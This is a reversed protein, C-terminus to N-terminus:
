MKATCKLVALREIFQPMFGYYWKISSFGMEGYPDTHSATDVSPEKDITVFKSSKGDTQFGVTTFAKDGVVLFPFVDYKSGTKYFSANTANAGKGAWKMMHPVVVIRFGAIRGVEGKLLTTGAAYQHAPVFAPKDHFDKMAELTPILESGVFAVRCDPITKTDILRTGTIIKTQKPTHNNDLDIGLRVLDAYSLEMTDNLESMQTASGTYKVLGANTLLDLQLKDEYIKVAANMKERNLHMKLQADTDFDLSERSYEFFFGMKILNSTMEQRTFGVRNVRGGKEALLPFKDPILGIDTSSGYLNGNAYKAGKADLGLENRNRDDIIPFYRYQKIAKGHNKPMNTTDALQGFYSEQMAEFLAKREYAHKTIQNAGLQTNGDGYLIGSM